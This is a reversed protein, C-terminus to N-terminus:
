DELYKQWKGNKRVMWTDVWNDDGSGGAAMDKNFDIYVVQGDKIGASEAAQLSTFHTEKSTKIKNLQAQSLPQVKKNKTNSKSNDNKTEGDNTSLETGGADNEGNAGSWAEVQGFLTSADSSTNPDGAPKIKKGDYLQDVTIGDTKKFFKKLKSPELVTEFIQVTYNFEQPNRYFLSPNLLYSANKDGKVASKIRNRLLSSSESMDVLQALYQNHKEEIKINGDKAIKQFYELFPNKTLDIGYKTCSSRFAGVLKTLTEREAPSDGLKQLVERMIVERRESDATKWEAYFEDPIDQIRELLLFRM